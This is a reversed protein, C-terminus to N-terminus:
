DERKFEVLNGLSSKDYQLSGNTEDFHGIMFLTYDSPHAAFQHNPDNLCDGIARIAMGTTQMFFPQLFAEAKEDYVSFIKKIM